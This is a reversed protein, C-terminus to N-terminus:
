SNRYEDWLYKDHNKALDKPGKLRYKKGIQVLRGLFETGTKKAKPIKQEYLYHSLAENVIDAFAKREDIAKKRAYKFLDEDLRVTTRIM